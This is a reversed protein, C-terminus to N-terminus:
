CLLAARLADAAGSAVRADLTSEVTYTRDPKRDATERANRRFVAHLPTFCSRRTRHAAPGIAIGPRACTSIKLHVLTFSHDYIISFIFVHRITHILSAFVICRQHM